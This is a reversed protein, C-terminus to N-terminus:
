KIIAKVHTIRTSWRNGVFEPTVEMIRECELAIDVYDVVLRLPIGTLIVSGWPLDDIKESIESIYDILLRLIGAENSIEFADHISCTIPEAPLQDFNGVIEIHLENLPLEMLKPFIENFCFVSEKEIDIRIALKAPGAGGRFFNDGDVERLWDWVLPQFMERYNAVGACDENSKTLIILKKFSM